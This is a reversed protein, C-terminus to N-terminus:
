ILMIGPNHNDSGPNHDSGGAKISASRPVRLCTSLGVMITAPAGLHEWANKTHEWTNGSKRDASGSKDGTSGPAGLYVALGSCQNLLSLSKVV